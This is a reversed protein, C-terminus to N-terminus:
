ESKYYYIIVLIIAIMLAMLITSVLTLSQLLIISFIIFVISFVYLARSGIFIKGGDLSHLPLMSFIAIFYNLKAIDPFGLNTAILAVLLSIIPGALAITAIEFNTLFLHKHKIRLDRKSSIITNHLSAFIFKGNSVFILILSLIIGIPIKPITFYLGFFTKRGSHSSPPFGLRKIFWIEMKSSANHHYAVIKHASEYIVLSLFAIFLFLLWNFVGILADFTTAGWSRFSFIFSLVIAIIFIHLFENKTFNSM